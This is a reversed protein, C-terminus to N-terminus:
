ESTPSYELHSKLVTSKEFGRVCGARPFWSLLVLPSSTAEEERSFVETLFSPWPVCLVTLQLPASAQCLLRLAPCLRRMVTGGLEISILDYAIASLLLVQFSLPSKFYLLTIVSVSPADAHTYHALIMWLHYRKYGRFPSDYPFKLLPLFLLKALLRPFSIYIRLNHHQQFRTLLSHHPYALVSLLAAPVFILITCPLCM